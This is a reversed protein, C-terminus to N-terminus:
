SDSPVIVTMAVDLRIPSRKGTPLRHGKLPLVDARDDELGAARGPDVAVGIGGARETGGDALPPKPEAIPVGIM